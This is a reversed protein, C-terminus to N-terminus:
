KKGRKWEEGEGEDGREEMERIKEEFWLEIERMRGANYSFYAVVFIILVIFIIM